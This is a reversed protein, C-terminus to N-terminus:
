NGNSQHKRRRILMRIIIVILIIAALAILVLPALVLVVLFLPALIIFLTIFIIQHRESEKKKQLPLLQKIKEELVLINEDDENIGLRQRARRRAEIDQQMKYIEVDVDWDDTSVNQEDYEVHKSM